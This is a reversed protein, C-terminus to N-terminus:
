HSVKPFCFIMECGFLFPPPPPRGQAEGRYGGMFVQVQGVIKVNRTSEIESLSWGKGLIQDSTYKSIKSRVYTIIISGGWGKIGLYKLLNTVLIPGVAAIGTNVSLLVPFVRHVRQLGFTLIPEDHPLETDRSRIYAFLLQRPIM